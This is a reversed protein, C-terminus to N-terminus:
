LALAFILIFLLIVALGVALARLMFLRSRSTPYPVDEDEM